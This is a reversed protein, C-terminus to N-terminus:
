DIKLLKMQKKFTEGTVVVTYIGKDIPAHKGGTGNWEINIYGNYNYDDPTFERIKRGTMDFIEVRIRQWEIQDPVDIRIFVQDSFPNPYARMQIQDERYVQKTGTMDMRVSEGLNSFGVADGAIVNGGSSGPEQPDVVAEMGPELALFATYRSLVREGLSANIVSQIIKNDYTWTDELSQIFNGTWMEENLSDSVSIHAADFKLELSKVQGEYIGSAEIVFPLKGHYKGVQLIPRRLYTALDSSNINYRGFCFGDELTTHLDFSTLIGGMDTFAQSLVAPVTSNWYDYEYFNGGSQRTLMTYLYENGSFYQQGIYYWTEYRDYFDIVHIVPLKGLKKLKDMLENAKEQEGFNDSNSLLLMEADVGFSHIFNIGSELLKPLDTYDKVPNIGMKALATNISASDAPIWTQSVKTMGPDSLIINFYDGEHLYNLLTSKLNHFVDNGDTNYSNEKEFDLLILVKRNDPMGFVESPLFAMQYIGEEGDEFRSLYIGNEIPSSYAIQLNKNFYSNEIDLTSLSQFSKINSGSFALEPYGPIHPNRWQSNGISVIKIKNVPIFSPQLIDLPL